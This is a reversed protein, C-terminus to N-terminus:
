LSLLVRGYRVKHLYSISYTAFDKCHLAIPVGNSHAVNLQPLHYGIARRTSEHLRNGSLHVLRLDELDLAFRLDWSVLPPSHEVILSLACRMSGSVQDM